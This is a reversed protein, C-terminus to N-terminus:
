LYFTRLVVKLDEDQLGYEKLFSVFDPQFKALQRILQQFKLASGRNMFKNGETWTIEGSETVKCNVPHTNDGSYLIVQLSWSTGAKFILANRFKANPFPRVGGVLVGFELSDIINKAMRDAHKRVEEARSTQGYAAMKDAASMYTSYDLEEFKRLHKM